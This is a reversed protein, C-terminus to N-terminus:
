GGLQACKQYRSIIEDQAEASMNVFYASFGAVRVLLNRYEEPRKQAKVLTDADTVTFHIHMGGLNAYTEIMSAIVNPGKERSVMTPDLSITFSTGNPYLSFDLKTVSNIAATPGETM